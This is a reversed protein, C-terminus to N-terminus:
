NGKSRYHGRVYTGDRRYYGDVHITKPNGTLPSVDGYCSGNEACASSSVGVNRPTETYYPRSYVGNSWIGSHTVRGDRGKQTGPGDQKGRVWFGEYVTGTAFTYVGHGSFLGREFTGVYSDGNEKFLAGQGHFLGDQLSGSYTSGGPVAMTGEVFANNQWKGAITILIKGNKKSTGVGDGHAVGRVMTGAWTDLTGNIHSITQTGFGEAFGDICSGTWEMKVPPPADWYLKCGTKTAVYTDPEQAHVGVPVILIGLLTILLARFKMMKYDGGM